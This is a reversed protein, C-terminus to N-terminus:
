KNPITTARDPVQPPGPLCDKLIDEWSLMKIGQHGATMVRISITPSILPQQGSAMTIFDTINKIAEFHVSMLKLWDRYSEWLPMQGRNVRNASTKLDELEDDEEAAGEAAKEGSADLVRTLLIM